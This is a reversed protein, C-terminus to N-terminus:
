LLPIDGAGPRPSGAKPLVFHFATGQGEGGSEVWIRGGHTEVIRKAYALGTGIGEREKVHHRQFMGFIREIQAEPVGLGTDEITILWQTEGDDCTIDIRRPPETGIYAVANGILAEFLQYLRRPEGQVSPLDESVNMEIQRAKIEAEMSKLVRAVLDALDVTEWPGDLRGIRSLELLASLLQQMHNANHCIRELRFRASPELTEGHQRLLQSGFGEISVLPSKLDHSVAYLFADLERNREAMARKYAELQKTLSQIQDDTDSM